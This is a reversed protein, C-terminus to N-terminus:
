ADNGGFNRAIKKFQLIIEELDNKCYDPWYKDIFFLESYITQLPMFNSLRRHGGYRVVVEPMPLGCTDLNDFLNKETVEVGSSTLKKIARLTEDVGGYNIAIALTKKNCDLNNALAREIVKKLDSPLCSIDGLFRLNVNNEKCFGIIERDLFYAIVGLINSVEEENRNFNETSFAYVTLCDIPLEVFDKVARLFAKAGEIHGSKRPMGKETAWRGNGDMIVALHQM